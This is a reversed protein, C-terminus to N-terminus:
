NAAVANALREIRDAFEAPEMGVDRWREAMMRLGDVNIAGSETAAHRIFDMTWNPAGHENVAENILAALEAIQDEEYYLPNTNM